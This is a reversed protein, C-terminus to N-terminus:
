GGPLSPPQTAGLGTQFPAPFMAKVPMRDRVELGYSTVIGLSSDCGMGADCVRM